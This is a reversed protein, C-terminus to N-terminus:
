RILCPLVSETYSITPAWDYQCYLKHQFCTCTWPCQYVTILKIDYVQVKSAIGYKNPDDRYKPVSSGCPLIMVATSGTQDDTTLVNEAFWKRYASLEQKSRDYQELTVKEGQTRIDGDTNNEPENPGRKFQAHAIRSPTCALLRAGGAPERGTIECRNALGFACLKGNGDCILVSM